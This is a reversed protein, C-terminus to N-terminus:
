LRVKWALSRVRVGHEGSGKLYYIQPLITLWLSVGHREEIGGLAPVKTMKIM